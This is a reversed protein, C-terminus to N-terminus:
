RELRHHSSLSGELHARAFLRPKRKPVQAELTRSCLLEDPEM